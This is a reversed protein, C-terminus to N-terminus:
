TRQPMPEPEASDLSPMQGSLQLYILQILQEFDIPKLLLPPLQRLPLGHIEPQIDDVPMGSLVITPLGQRHQQTYRLVDFGNVKPMHLDLLILAIERTKLIQLAEDGGAAQCVDFGHETLLTVIAAREIPSDDCVLIPRVSAM